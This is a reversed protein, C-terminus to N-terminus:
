IIKRIPVLWGPLSLFLYVYHFPPISVLDAETVSPKNKSQKIQDSNNTQSNGMM